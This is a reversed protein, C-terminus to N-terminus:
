DAAPWLSEPERGATEPLTAFGLAAAAMPAFTVLAAFGFRNGVDAVAGFAVLGVVAGAVGAAIQWGAAAARVSTPFLENILAGAGPAFVAGATVGAVYGCVFVVKGGSYAAIGTAAMAVMAAACTPRRGWHDALWRGAVLGVLGLGGAAVVMAATATGALHVVNQAYLFAFSNAPGTVVSVAFLLASIRVLRWRYPAGVAGVVFAPRLQEGATRLFRDPEELWRAVLPLLALPLVALAFLGRFGLAHRALGHLVATLGAGAAYGASILALARTRQSSATQEAGAVQALANTASLLPRGAAFIAVFWWYGPSAAAVVTLALGGAATALLTTRRGLRDAAASLPFGGVSALRIIALGVGLETGSLGAQEAITAGHTAHGFGGAVDGLAALAGFQGFGSAFACAAIALVAPANWRHLRLPPPEPRAM